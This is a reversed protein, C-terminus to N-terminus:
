CQRPCRPHCRVNQCRRARRRRARHVRAAIENIFEAVGRVGLWVFLWLLCVPRFTSYRALSCERAGGSVDGGAGGTRLWAM